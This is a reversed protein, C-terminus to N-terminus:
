PITLNINAETDTQDQSIKIVWRALHTDLKQITTFYHLMFNVM